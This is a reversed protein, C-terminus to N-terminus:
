SGTFYDRSLRWMRAYIEGISLLNTHSGREAIRGRELVIIEDMQDMGVLRHTVMLVSKQEAAGLIAEIVKRETIADLNATPEDLLLIPADKLLARALAIRQRQGGSVLAGQEGVLTKLGEPLERIFEDLQAQQIAHQVADPSAQPNGVRINEEITANFLYSDQSIVGYQRRVDDPDLRRLDAGGLLIEGYEYEWFRQLLNLLSTKGAGSAGVIALRKGTALELAIDELVPPEGQSYAFTLNKIKLPEAEGVPLFEGEARVVPERDIVEFLRRGAQLSGSLSQFAVPLPLIAEFSAIAGLGLVALLRGDLSGNSVKPIALFLIVFMALNVSLTILSSHLGDIWFLRRQAADFAKSKENFKGSFNAGRNNASIEAIGQIGEITISRLEARHTVVAAGPTESLRRAALPVVVGAFLQFGLLTFALERGWHGFFALVAGSSLLAVVPPAIVRVYFEQLADVDDVIRGLLDGSSRQWLRAPALPELREFFWVRLDALLKFTVTHSVVRELYRFVGRSIGFFRVGVIAVQLEAVSPHLAAASILYASTTMLAVWSVVTAWSFVVSLLVWRWASLIMLFLRRVVRM